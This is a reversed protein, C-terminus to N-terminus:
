TGGTIGYYYPHGKEQHEAKLPLGRCLFPLLTRGGGAVTSQAKSGPSSM